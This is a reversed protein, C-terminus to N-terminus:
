KIIQVYKAEKKFPKFRVGGGEMFKSFFEVFQLRSSHIFAGLVNIVLNFTHGGILIIIAVVWGFYPIMNIALGAILNIVMAIIGTALGLALLRSYSLTDSFYGVLGYLSSVGKLIKLAINKEKRGQTLVLLAVGVLVAYLAIKSLLVPLVGFSVAIWFIISLLFYLWVGDDLLGDLLRGNKIKWYMSVAIGALIQVVGMILTIILITMPNAVPDILRISILFNGISPPLQESLVIGFWGGFLAGLIFTSIGGWIMVRFLKSKEKPIKFIKIALFALLALILGYGADTLCMGFFIIFFVTLYPTPDPENQLPMGYISTVSEFADIGNKNELVIPISEGDEIAIEQLHYNKTEEQIAQNIIKFFKEEMWFKIRFTKETGGTKNSIERQEKKWSFIDSLVKLDGLNKTATVAEIELNKIKKEAEKIEIKKEKIADSVSQKDTIINEPIQSAKFDSKSLISKIENEIKKVFTIAFLIESETEKAKELRVFNLKDVERMLNNYSDISVTGLLTKTKQTEIETKPVFSLGSWDSLIKINIENRCVISNLENLNAEIKECISVVDKYNFSTLISQLNDETLQIKSGLLKDRLSIKIKNYRSLFNIAFVLQAYIYEPLEEDTIIVKEKQEDEIIQICGYRHFLELLNQKDVKLGLLNFKKVSSIM